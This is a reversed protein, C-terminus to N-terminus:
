AHRDTPYLSNRGNIETMQNRCIEGRKDFESGRFARCVKIPQADGRIYKTKLLSVNNLWLAMRKGSLIALGSGSDIEDDQGGGKGRFFEM